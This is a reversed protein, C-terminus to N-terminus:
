QRIRPVGKFLGIRKLNGHLCCNWINYICKDAANPHELKADKFYVQIPNSDSSSLVARIFNIKNFDMTGVESFLSFPIVFDQYDTTLDKGGEDLTSMDELGTVQMEAVDPVGGSGVEILGSVINTNTTKMTIHLKGNAQTMGLADVPNFRRYAVSITSPLSIKWDRIAITKVSSGPAYWQIGKINSSDLGTGITTADTGTLTIETGANTITSVPIDSGKWELANTFFGNSDTDDGSTVRIFTETTSINQNGDTGLVIKFSSNSSSWENAAIPNGLYTALPNLGTLRILGISVLLFDEDNGIAEPIWLGQKDTIFGSPAQFTGDAQRIWCGEGKYDHQCHTPSWHRRPVFLANVNMSSELKFSVDRASILPADIFYLEEVCKPDTLNDSFVAKIGVQNGKMGNNTLVYGSILQSANAITVTFGTIEGRTNQSIDDYTIPFKSYTQAKVHRVEVNDISLNQSSGSGEFSLYSFQVSGVTEQTSLTAYVTYFGKTTYTGILTSFNGLYVKVTDGSSIDKIQFKIQYKENLTTGSTIDQYIKGTNAGTKSAKGSAISWNTEKTWNSDADFKGNTILDNVFRTSRFYDVDDDYDTLYLFNDPDTGIQVEFLAIPFSVEKNKKEAYSQNVNFPM